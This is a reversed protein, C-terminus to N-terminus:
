DLAGCSILHLQLVITLAYSIAHGKKFIYSGDDAPTYIESRVANRDKIYPYLLHRKGPRILSIADALEQVSTPKVKSIIKFHRRIQFLKEVNSEDNLLTWDPEIKLLERIESKSNFSNLLSLHLFDIKFFGVDEADKYSIAALGTIVDKAMNQFYVGAPHKKLKGDKVISARVASPFLDNIDFTTQFDWDIDM